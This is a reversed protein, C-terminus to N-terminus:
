NEETLTLTLRNVMSNILDRTNQQTLQIYLATTKPCEHGMETQIAHLNLGVEVAHTGYCHRLTHISVQKHIGCRQVITRFARQAGSRDMHCTAHQRESANKGAPFIFQPHRHTAWYKRLAHLTVEPLTVYRDKKGKAERLHVRMLQSDIDGVKLNLAEGLRLGMSYVTLIYIQYRVQQTSNILHSIENPTLIDPLHKVVPPKVIDVWM